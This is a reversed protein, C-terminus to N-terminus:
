YNAVANGATSAELPSVPKSGNGFNGMTAQGAEMPRAAFLLTVMEGRVEEPLCALAEQSFPVAEDDADLVHEWGLVCYAFVADIIARTDEEGRRTHRHAIQRYVDSPIRRYWITSEGFSYALREQGSILRIGKHM